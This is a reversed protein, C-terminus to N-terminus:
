ESSAATFAKMYKQPLPCRKFKEDVVFHTTRGEALVAQDDARVVQYHFVLVSRRVNQLHTRVIVEDDYYAPLKYRVSLDIVPIHCNDQQEMDRYRFGYQRLLEVRGVEFWVVFNSHYVVGMQDTDAYRVRITTENQIPATM